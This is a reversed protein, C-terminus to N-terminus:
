NLNALSSEGQIVRRDGPETIGTGRSRGLELGQGPGSRWESDGGRKGTM